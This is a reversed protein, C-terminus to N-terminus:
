LASEVLEEIDDQKAVGFFTKRVHGDSDLAVYAPVGPVKGLASKGQLLTGADDIYLAFPVNLFQKFQALFPGADPQVAIGIFTVRDETKSALVLPTLALQSTADYTTFLFLLSPRGRLEALELSRGQENTVKLDLVPTSPGSLSGACASVFLLAAALLSEIV